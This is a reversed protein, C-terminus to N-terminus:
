KQARYGRGVRASPIEQQTGRKADEGRPIKQEDRHETGEMPEPVPYKRSPATSQVRAEPNKQEDRHETGEMLEPVPYKRSPATSQM